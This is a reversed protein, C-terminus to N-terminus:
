TQSGARVFCTVIPYKWTRFMVIKCVKNRNQFFDEDLISAFATVTILIKSVIKSVASKPTVGIFINVPAVDVVYTDNSKFIKNEARFSDLSASM